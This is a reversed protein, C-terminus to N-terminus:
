KSKGRLGTEDHVLRAEAVADRCQRHL